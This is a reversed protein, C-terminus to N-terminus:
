LQKCYGQMRIKNTWSLFGLSTWYETNIGLIEGKPCQAQLNEYAQNLYNTQGVFGLVVFQETQTEIKKDKSYQVGRGYDSVYTEHLSHACAGALLALTALPFLKM